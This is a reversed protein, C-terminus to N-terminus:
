HKTIQKALERTPSLVLAVINGKKAEPSLNKLYYELIPIGFALTKGSGTAAKGIVDHGAMTEPITATQIPTPSTFGLTQLARLTPFSLGLKEWEPIDIDDEGISESLAAFPNVLNDEENETSKKQTKKSEKDKKRKEKAKERKEKLKAKRDSEAKDDETKEGPMGEEEPRDDKSVFDGGCGNWEEADTEGDESLAEGNAAAFEIRGDVGEVVDVGEAEELGMFGEVDALREPLD